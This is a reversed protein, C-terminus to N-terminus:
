FCVSRKAVLLLDICRCCCREAALLLPADLLCAPIVLPTEQSELRTGNPFESVKDQEVTRRGDAVSGIGAARPRMKSGLRLGHCGGAELMEGTARRCGGRGAEQRRGDGKGAAVCRMALCRWWLRLIGLCWSSRRRRGWRQRRTDGLTHGDLVKLRVVRARRRRQGVAALHADVGFRGVIGLQIMTQKGGPLEEMWRHLIREPVVVPITPPRRRRPIGRGVLLAIPVDALRTNGPVDNQNPM